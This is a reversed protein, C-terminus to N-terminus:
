IGLLQKRTTDALSLTLLTGARSRARGSGQNPDTDRERGPATAGLNEGLPQTGGGTSKTAQAPAPGNNIIVTGGSGQNAGPTAAGTDPTSTTADRITRSDKPSVGFAGMANRMDPSVSPDSSASSEAGM